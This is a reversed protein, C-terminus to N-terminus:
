LRLGKIGGTARQSFQLDASVTVMMKGRKSMFAGSPYGNKAKLLLEM